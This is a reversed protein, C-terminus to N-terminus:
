TFFLTITITGQFIEVASGSSASVEMVLDVNSSYPGNVQIPLPFDTTVASSTFTAAYGPGLGTPRQPGATDYLKFVLQCNATRSSTQVSIRMSTSEGLLRRVEDTALYAKVAGAAGSTFVGSFM